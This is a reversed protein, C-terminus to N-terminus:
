MYVIRIYTYYYIILITIALFFFFSIFLFFTKWFNKQLKEYLMYFLCLVPVIINFTIAIIINSEIDMQRLVPMVAMSYSMVILAILLKKMNNRLRHAM